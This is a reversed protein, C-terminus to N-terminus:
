ADTDRDKCTFTPFDAQFSTEAMRLNFSIAWVVVVAVEQVGYGTVLIVCGEEALLGFDEDGGM